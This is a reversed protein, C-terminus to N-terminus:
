SEGIVMRFVSAEDLDDGVGHLGGIYWPLANVTSLKAFVIHRVTWRTM